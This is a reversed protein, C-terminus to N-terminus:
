FGGLDCGGSQAKFEGGMGSGCGSLRGLHLVRGLVQRSDQKFRGPM